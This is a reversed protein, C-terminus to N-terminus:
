AVDEIVVALQETLENSGCATILLQEMARTMAIYALIAMIKGCCEVEALLSYHFRKGTPQLQFAPTRAAAM